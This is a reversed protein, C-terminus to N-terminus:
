EPGFYDEDVRKIEYMASTRVGVSHQFLLKALEEGDILIIRKAIRGAYERAETSFTSTTVFVGKTAGIGDLSGAFAQVAPRGITNGPQYRKAQVYVVDLGLPDENIIGDVGEDGSRGLAQGADKRSGGYGMAVLLDVILQEFFKPSASLVREILEERLTSALEQYDAEIREEPTQSAGRVEETGKGEEAGQEKPSRAPKGTQRRKIWDNFEDFEALLANDVQLVGRRLVERGRETIEFHARRPRRILGAHALYTIAWHVRNAFLTQRGSSMLQDREDDSLGFQDALQEISERAGVEGNSAIQLVPLMLTQYDPLPM